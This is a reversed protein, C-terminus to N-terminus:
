LIIRKYDQLSDELSSKNWLLIASLMAPSDLNFNARKMSYSHRAVWARKKKEDNHDIFTQGTKSGFHVTKHKGDVLLNVM